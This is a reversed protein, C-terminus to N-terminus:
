HQRNLTPVKDVRINNQPTGRIIQTLKTITLQRLCPRTYSQKVGTLILIYEEM